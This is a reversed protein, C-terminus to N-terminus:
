LVSIDLFFVHASKVLGDPIFADDTLREGCRQLGALHMIEDDDAATKEAEAGGKMRGALSQGHLYQLSAPHTFLRAAHIAPLHDGAQFIVRFPQELAESVPAPFLGEAKGGARGISDEVKDLSFAQLHRM